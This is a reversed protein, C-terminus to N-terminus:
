TDAFAEARPDLTQADVPSPAWGVAQGAYFVEEMGGNKVLTRNPPPMGAALTSCGLRLAMTALPGLTTHIKGDATLNVARQQFLVEASLGGYEDAPMSIEVVLPTNAKNGLVVSTCGGREAPERFAAVVACAVLGQLWSPAVGKPVPQGRVSGPWCAPSIRAEVLNRGSLFAPALEQLEANVAAAEAQLQFAGSSAPRHHIFNLNGTLGSAFGLYNQSRLQQPSEVDFSQGCIWAPEWDMPYQLTLETWFDTWFCLRYILSAEEIM